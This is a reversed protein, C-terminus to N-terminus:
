GRRTSGRVVVTCPVVVKRPAKGDLVDILMAVSEAGLRRADLSLATLPVEWDGTGGSQDGERMVSVLLDGPIDLGLRRAAIVLAQGYTENLGHVADPRGPRSLLRLAAEVADESAIPTEVVAPQGAAACWQRYLHESDQTYADPEPGSLLGVRTAGADRLHGLVEAMGRELDSEVTPVDEYGPDIPRGDTVVPLGRRACDALLPDEQVPDVIILGDMPVRAWLGSAPNGPVVVLAYDREVAAMTAGASFAAYYPRYTSAWPRDSMHGVALGVIGTRGSVLGQAVPDPRYGLEEAVARVRERTAAAIQGKGSLAHSVTTISLGTARAVDRIGIRRGAAGAQTSKRSTM